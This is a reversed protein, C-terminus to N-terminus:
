TGLPKEVGPVVKKPNKGWRHHQAPLPQADGQSREGAGSAPM